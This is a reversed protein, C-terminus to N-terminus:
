FLHRVNKTLPQIIFNMQFRFQTFWKTFRLKSLIIDSKQTAIWRATTKSLLKGVPVLEALYQVAMSQLTVEM